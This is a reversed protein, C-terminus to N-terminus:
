ISSQEWWQKGTVNTHANIVIFTVKEILYELAMQKLVKLSSSLSNQFIMEIQNAYQDLINENEM